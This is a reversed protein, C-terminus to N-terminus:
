IFSRKEYESSKVKSNASSVVRVSLSLCKLVRKERTFASNLFITKRKARMLKAKIWIFCSQHKKHM